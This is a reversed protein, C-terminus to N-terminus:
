GSIVEGEDPNLIMEDASVPILKGLWVATRGRQGRRRGLQSIEYATPYDPQGPSTLELRALLAEAAAIQAELDPADRLRKPITDGFNFKTKGARLSAILDRMAETAQRTVIGGRFDFGQSAWVYFNHDDQSIGHVGSARYWEIVRRNFHGGFGKGQFEEDLQVISHQAWVERRVTGDAYHMTAPGISRGFNGISGGAVGEPGYISGEVFIEPDVPHVRGRGDTRIGARRIGVRTVKTTYPGFQGEYVDRLAADITADDADLLDHIPVPTAPPRGAPATAKRPARKKPPEPAPGGGGTEHEVLRDVLERKRGSLRLNAGAKNRERIMDKLQDVTKLDLSDRLAEPDPTSPATGGSLERSWMALNTGTNSGEYDAALAALRGAAAQDSISGDRMGNAIETLEASTQRDKPDFGNLLDALRDLHRDISEDDADIPAPADAEEVVAKSLRIREGDRDLSFGPRIVQVPQGERLDGSIPEHLSRTFAGTDGAEGDRTIGHAALLRDMEARPSPVPRDSPDDIILWHKDQDGYHLAGARQRDTLSGQASEPVANAGPDHIAIRKLAADQEARPIDSLEDRLDAISVYGGERMLRQPTMGPAMSFETPGEELGPRGLLSRFAARIRNEVEVQRAQEVAARVPALEDTIGHRVGANDLRSLLAETSADNHLIEDLEGATASFRRASDIDAQRDRAAAEPDPMPVDGRRAVVGEVARPIEWRGRHASDRGAALDLSQLVYRIRGAKSSPWRRGMGFGRGTNAVPAQVNLEEAVQVIEALTLGHLLEENEDMPGGLVSERAAKPAAKKAPARPTAKGAAELDPRSPTKTDAQGLGEADMLRNIMQATTGSTDLGRDALQERLWSPSRGQLQQRRVKRQEKLAEAEMLRQNRERVAHSNKAHTADVLEPGGATLRDLERRAGAQTLNQTIHVERGTPYFAKVNYRGPAHLAPSIRLDYGPPLGPEAPAKKAPAPKMAGMAVRLQDIDKDQEVKPLEAFPKDLDGGRAWENRSLWAAHIEEGLAERTAPDDLDVRGRRALIGEIVEAAARNERQWDEPLDAYDTNAIDVQDTGHSAIWGKDKTTKLRTPKKGANDPDARFTKHFTQRWDEHLATAMTEVRRAPKPAAKKAPARPTAKGAPKPTGDPKGRAHELIALKLKPGSMRPPVDIGLQTAATKLQPQTWGELPDGDADAAFFERIADLARDSLKKFRGGGVKGKGVREGPLAGYYGREIDDDGWVQARATQLAQEYAATDTQDTQGPQEGPPLLQVSVLGTHKLHKLDDASVASVASAAEFGAQILSAITAAQTQQREALDKADDLLFPIDRGDYWLRWTPDPPPFLVQMSACWNAWLDRMTTDVVNRKAASYNGANLSSGQMGESFGLLAPHIGSLNAIRTENKGVVRSYDIQQMNAGVVTVDAGGATYLTRYANMAGRHNADMEAVFKKFQEPTIEKPLSVALNPTAANSWWALGHDTAGIDSQIDRIIPTMWSMGRYSALPDPMFPVFHCYEGRMFVAASDDQLGYESYAIGVQKFGVKRGEYMRDALVITVYDPRLVVLEDDIHVVWGNGGLDGYLLARKMLDGTSGGVWPTRLPELSDDDLLDGARGDSREQFLMPAQGFVRLRYAEAAALPGDRYLLGEAYGAFNNGVKEAPRQGWTTTVGYQNPQYTIGGFRFTTDQLYQQLSYRAIEGNVGNLVPVTHGRFPVLELTM